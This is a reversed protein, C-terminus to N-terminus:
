QTNTERILQCLEPASRHDMRECPGCVDAHCIVFMPAQLGEVRRLDCCQLKIWTASFLFQNTTLVSTQIRQSLNGNLTTNPHKPSGRGV